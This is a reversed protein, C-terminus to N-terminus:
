VRFGLKNLFFNILTVQSLDGEPRLVEEHQRLHLPARDDEQRTRKTPGVKYLGRLRDPGPRALSQPVHYPDRDAAERQAM